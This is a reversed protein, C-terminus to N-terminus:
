VTTGPAPCADGVLLCWGAGFTTGREIDWAIRQLHDSIRKHEATFHVVIRATMKRKKTEVPSNATDFLRSISEAREFSVTGPPICRFEKEDTLPIREYEIDVFDSSAGDWVRVRFM